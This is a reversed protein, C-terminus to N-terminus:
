FNNVKTEGPLKEKKIHENAEIESIKKEISSKSCTPFRFIKTFKIRINTFKINIKKV